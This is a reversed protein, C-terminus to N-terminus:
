HREPIEQPPERSGPATDADLPKGPGAHIRPGGYSGNRGIEAGPAETDGPNATERVSRRVLQSCNTLLTKEPVIHGDDLVEGICWIEFQHPAKSIDDNNVGNNINQAIAALVQKDSPAAFPTM